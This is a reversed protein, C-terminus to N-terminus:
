CSSVQIQKFTGKFNKCEFKWGTDDSSIQLDKYVEEQNSDYVDRLFTYIMEHFLHRTSIIVRENEEDKVLIAFM